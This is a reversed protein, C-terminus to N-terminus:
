ALRPRPGDQWKDITKIIKNGKVFGGVLPNERQVYIEDEVAAVALDFAEKTNNLPHIKTHHISTWVCKKEIVLVRRAGAPTKGVYSASIRQWEGEGIKVLASGKSVIYQHEHRHIMSTLVAGKPMIITRTYLGPTFIHKLKCDILIADKLITAELEDIQDDMTKKFADTPSPLSFLFDGSHSLEERVEEAVTEEWSKNEM